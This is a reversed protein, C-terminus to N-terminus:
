YKDTNELRTFVSPGPWLQNHGPNNGHDYFYSLLPNRPYIWEDYLQDLLNKTGLM